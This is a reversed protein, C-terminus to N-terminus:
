THEAVIGVAYFTPVYLVRSGAGRSAEETPRLGALEDDSLEGRLDAELTAWESRLEDHPESPPWAAGLSGAWVERLGAQHFLGRLKRGVQTDAGRAGLATQQRRGLEALEPPYDIRGGYDPEALAMVRGGVRTVRAMELLIALPSAVWLLLYHCITADFARNPFPIRCGDAVVLTLSPDHHRAFRTVQLDIDLGFTSLAYRQQVDSLVVGTGCGVELVRRQPASGLHALLRARLEETWRAQIQYRDHLEQVHISEAM